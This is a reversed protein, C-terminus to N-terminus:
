QTLQCERSCMEPAMFAPTGETSTLKDSDEYTISVGFDGIQLFLSLVFCPWTAVAYAVFAARCM